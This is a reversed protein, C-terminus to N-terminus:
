RIYIVMQIAPELQERYLDATGLGLAKREGRPRPRGSLSRQVARVVAQSAASQAWSVARDTRLNRGGAEGCGWAGLM